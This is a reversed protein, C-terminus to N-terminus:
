LAWGTMIPMKTTRDTNHMAAVTPRTISDLRRLTVSSSFWSDSLDSSSAAHPRSLTPYAEATTIVRAYRDSTQRTKVDRKPACARTTPPTTGRSDFWRNAREQLMAVAKKNTNIKATM